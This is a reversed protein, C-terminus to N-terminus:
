TAPLPALAADIAGFILRASCGKVLFAAVPIREAEMQLGPDDYASLIIVPLDPRREHLLRAVDLGNHKPMRLDAILLDPQLADVLAIAQEGDTGTGVVDYGAEQLLQRLAELLTPADDALVIRPAQRNMDSGEHKM